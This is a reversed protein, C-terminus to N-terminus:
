AMEYVLRSKHESVPTKSGNRAAEPTKGVRRTHIAFM